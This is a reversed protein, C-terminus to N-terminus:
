KGPNEIFKKNEIFQEYIELQDNRLAKADNLRKLTETIIGLVTEGFDFEKMPDAIWNMGVKGDPMPVQVFGSSNIEEQSLSCEDMATKVLKMIAFSDRKESLIESVRMRGAISLKIKM